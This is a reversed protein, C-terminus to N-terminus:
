RYSLELVQLKKVWLNKCEFSLIHSFMAKSASRRMVWRVNTDVNFQWRWQGAGIWPRPLLTLGVDHPLSSCSPMFSQICHLLKTAKSNWKRGSSVWHTAVNSWTAGVLIRTGTKIVLRPCCKCWQVGDVTCHQDTVLTLNDKCVTCRM